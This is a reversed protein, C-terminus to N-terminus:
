NVVTFVKRYFREKRNGKVLCLLRNKVTNNNVCLSTFFILTLFYSLRIKVSPFFLPIGERIYLLGFVGLKLTWSKDSVRRPVWIEEEGQPGEYESSEVGMRIPLTPVGRFRQPEPVEQVRFPTVEPGSRPTRSGLSMPREVDEDKKWDVWM